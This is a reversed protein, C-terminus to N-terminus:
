REKNISLRNSYRKDQSRNISFAHCIAIALADSEDDTAFSDEAIKLGWGVGRAVAQKSAKGNGTVSAKIVAPSYEYIKKKTMTYFAAMMAGRAQAIKAMIQINKVFVLSEMAVDDVSYKQVLQLIDQHIAGIREIFDSSSYRFVGSELRTCQNKIREIIGFGVKRTGPDLGLVIM